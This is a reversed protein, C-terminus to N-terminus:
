RLFALSRHRRIAEKREEALWMLKAPWYSTHLVCGTRAHAATPDLRKKLEEVQDASRTDFLHIIPTTPRGDRGVGLFSHWFASCCVAAPRLGGSQMHGHLNSLAEIALAALEEGDVEVGGDQTTAIRYPLQVGLGPLQRASGDFLLTRVSSSGVDLTVVVPDAMDRCDIRLWDFRPM